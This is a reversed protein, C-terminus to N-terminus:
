PIAPVPRRRHIVHGGAEAFPEFQEELFRLLPPRAAIQGRDFAALMAPLVAICLGPEAALTAVLRDQQADTLLGLPNNNNLGSPPRHGAWIQLSFSGPLTYSAPCAALHGVVEHLAAVTEPQARVLTAGPMGLPQHGLYSGTRAVLGVALALLLVVVLGGALPRASGQAGGRPLRPALLDHAFLAAIVALPAAAVNTQHGSVPFPYLVNIAAVLALTARAIPQRPAGARPPLLLLAAAPVLLWFSHFTGYGFVPLLPVFLAVFQWALLLLFFAKLAEGLALWPLRPALRAAALCALLGASALALV